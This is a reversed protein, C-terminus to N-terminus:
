VDQIPKQDLIDNEDKMRERCKCLYIQGRKELLLFTEYTQQLFPMLDKGKAQPTKGGFLRGCHRCRLFMGISEEKEAKHQLVVVNADGLVGVVKENFVFGPFEELTVKKM